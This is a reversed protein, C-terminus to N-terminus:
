LLVLIDNRFTLLLSKTKTHWRLIKLSGVQGGRDFIEPPAVAVMQNLQEFQKCLQHHHPQYNKSVDITSFVVVVELHCTQPQHKCYNSISTGYCCALLAEPTSYKCFQVMFVFPEALGYLSLVPATTFVIWSDKIATKYYILQISLPSQHLSYTM